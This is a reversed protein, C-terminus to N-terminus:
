LALEGQKATAYVWFVNRGSTPCPAKEPLEAVLGEGMLQSVRDPVSCFEVGSEISLQRRTM